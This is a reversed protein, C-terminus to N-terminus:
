LRNIKRLKARIRSLANDVSKSPKDLEKSIRDYSYGNLYLGLVSKEFESLCREIECQIMNLEEKDLILEEPNRNRYFNNAALLQVKEGNDEAPNESLSVYDRLPSHKKRNSANIATYIQRSICLEAFSYFSAEKEPNYDRIAKFLGIMGEQLLDDNEGGVLFFKRSVKRVLDKYKELLYDMIQEEGNQLREVLVEDSVSTNEAGDFFNQEM